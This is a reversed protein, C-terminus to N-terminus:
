LINYPYLFSYCTGDEILLIGSAEIVRNSIVGRGESFHFLIVGDPVIFEKGDDM